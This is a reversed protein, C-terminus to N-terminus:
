KERREGLKLARLKERKRERYRRAYERYRDLHALRFAKVRKREKEKNKRYYVHNKKHLYEINKLRWKNYTEPHKNRSERNFRLYKTHHLKYRRRFYRLMRKRKCEVCFKKLRWHINKMQRPRKITAGCQRCKKATKM